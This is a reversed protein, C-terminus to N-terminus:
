GTRRLDCRSQEHPEGEDRAWWWAYTLAGPGPVTTVIRAGTQAEHARFVGPDTEVFRTVGPLELCVVHLELRGDDAAVLVTHEVHRLGDRDSTTEYELRVARGRVVPTVLMRGLFPGTEPGDGRGRYLGPSASLLALLNADAHHLM